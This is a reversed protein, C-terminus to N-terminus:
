PSSERVHTLKINWRCYEDGEYVCAVKTLKYKKVGTLKIMEELWIEIVRCGFKVEKWDYVTVNFENRSIQETEARGSSYMRKWFPAARKALTVPSAFSALGRLFGSMSKKINAKIITESIDEGLKKYLHEHLAYSKKAPYWGARDANELLDALDDPLSAKFENYFDVGKNEIIWERFLVTFVGRGCGPEPKSSM